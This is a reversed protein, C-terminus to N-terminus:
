LLLPFIRSVKKRPHPVARACEFDITISDLIGHISGPQIRQDTSAYHDSHVYHLEGQM